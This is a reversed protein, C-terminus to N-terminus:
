CHRRILDDDNSEAAISNEATNYFERDLYMSRGYIFYFANVKQQITFGRPGDYIRLFFRGLRLDPV